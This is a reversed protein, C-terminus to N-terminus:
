MVSHCAEGEYERGLQCHYRLYSWLILKEYVSIEEENALRKPNSRPSEEGIDKGEAKEATATPTVGQGRNTESWTYEGLPAMVRSGKWATDEAGFVSCLLTAATTIRAQKWEQFLAEVTTSTLTSPGPAPTAERVTGESSPMPESGPTTAEDDATEIGEHIEEEGDGSEWQSQDEEDTATASSIANAESGEKKVKNLFEQVLAPRGKTQAACQAYPLSGLVHCRLLISPLFRSIVVVYLASFSKGLNRLFTKLRTPDGRCHM